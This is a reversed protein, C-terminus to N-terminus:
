AASGASRRSGSSAAPSAAGCRRVPRAAAVRGARRRDEVQNQKGAPVDYVFIAGAIAASWWRASRTCSTPAPASPWSGPSRATTSSARTTTARRDAGGPHRRVHGDALQDRGPRVGDQAIQASMVNFGFWGVCLLWSGLALWPISSPPHRHRPGQRLPRPARGLPLVASFGIWGGIAHVVISGAFDHFEEGLM